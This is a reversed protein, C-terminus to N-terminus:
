PRSSGDTAAAGSPASPSDALCGYFLRIWVGGADAGQQENILAVSGHCANKAAWLNEARAADSDNRVYTTVVHDGNPLDSKVYPISDCSSLLLPLLCCIARQTSQTAGCM